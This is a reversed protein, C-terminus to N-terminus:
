AEPTGVLGTTAAANTSVVAREGTAATVLVTSVAPRAEARRGPPVADVAEVGAVALDALVADALPGSGVATVLRVAAGLAVTTAAATAAPLNLPAQHAIPSLSNIPILM